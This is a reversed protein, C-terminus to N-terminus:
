LKNALFLSRNSVTHLSYYIFLTQCIKKNKYMYYKLQSLNEAVGSAGQYIWM